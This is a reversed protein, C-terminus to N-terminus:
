IDIMKVAEEDQIIEGLYKRIFSRSSIIYTVGWGKTM